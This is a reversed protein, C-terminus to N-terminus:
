AAEKQLREIETRAWLMGEAEVPIYEMVFTAEYPIDESVYTVLWPLLEHTWRSLERANMGKFKKIFYDMEEKETTSFVSEDGDLLVVPRKLKAGRHSDLRIAIQGSLQLEKLAEIAEVPVPGRPFNAYKAGTIPTGHIGFHHFDAAFLTKYLKTRGFSPDGECHKSIYLIAQRLKTNGATEGM